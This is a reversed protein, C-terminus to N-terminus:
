LGTGRDVKDTCGTIHTRFGTEDQYEHVVSTLYFTNDVPAGLGSLRIFRGPALDPIGVCDAELTGLRYSMREILSAVRADAQAQSSITPDILVKKGKSVLGGATTGTSLNNSFTDKASIIRGEGADMARAEISGVIGTISYEVNFTLIGTGSGLEMLVQRNSKAKRFYVTGRDVFFEFNFKKAAKVVFEYDSEAVLEITYASTPGMPIPAPSPAPAQALAAAAEKSAQKAASLAAKTEQFTKMAAEVASAAQQAKEKLGQVAAVAEPGGAAAALEAAQAAQQAQEAAAQATEATQLATLLAPDLDPTDTIQLDLLGGGTKLREYGTRQLIERVADAYNDATLQNSYTGAMMIGKIDMGTVEIYPLQGEEYGFSVGAVFGVFVNELTGLYGMDITLATGMAIQKGVEGFRFQGSQPDYVHYIRFRAISAEFGSTLEVHVDGIVMDGSDNSFPTGALTVSVQPLAFDQYKDRLQQYSMGSGVPGGADLGGTVAGAMSSLPM